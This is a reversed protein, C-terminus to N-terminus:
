KPRALTFHGYDKKTRYNLRFTKGDAQGEYEYVGGVKKGLDEEGAVYTMDERLDATMNMTYGFRFLLFYSANFHARYSDDGTRTAVCRLGGSHGTKDSKWTGKWRGSLHDQPASAAAASKWERQFKSACGGCLLLVTLLTVAHAPRHNM